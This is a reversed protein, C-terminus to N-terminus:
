QRRHHRERRALGHRRDRRQTGGGRGPDAGGRARTVAFPTGVPFEVSASMEDGELNPFFLFRAQGSALLTIAVAPLAFSFLLTLYRHRVANAIWRRLTNDRFGRVGSGWRM